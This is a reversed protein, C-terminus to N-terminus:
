GLNQIIVMIYIDGAQQLPLFAPYKYEITIPLNLIHQWLTSLWYSITYTGFKSHPLNFFHTGVGVELQLMETSHRIHQDPMHKAVEHMM